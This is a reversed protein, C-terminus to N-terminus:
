ADEPSDTDYAWVIVSGETTLSLQGLHASHDRLESVWGRAIWARVVSQPVVGNPLDYVQPMRQHNLPFALCYDLSLSEWADSLRSMLDATPDKSPRVM